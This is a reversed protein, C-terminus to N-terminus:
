PQTLTFLITLNYNGPAYDYGVPGALLDYYLTLFNNTNWFQSGTTIQQITQDTTSLTFTNTNATLAPNTSNLRLALMSAPLPTGTSSTSSSVKAKITFTNNAKSAVEIQFANTKLQQTELLSSSTLNYSTNNATLLIYNNKNQGRAATICFLLVIVNSIFLRLINKGTNYM